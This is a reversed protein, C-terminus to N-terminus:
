DATLDALSLNWNKLLFQLLRQEGESVKGDAKSIILIASLTVKRLDPDTVEAALRSLRADELLFVREQEAERVLERCFELFLHAFAERDIGVADYILHRNLWLIEKDHLKGDALVAIAVLRAAAEPSNEPLSKM